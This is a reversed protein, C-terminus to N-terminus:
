PDYLLVLHSSTADMKCNSDGNKIPDCAGRQMFHMRSTGNMLFIHDLSVYTKISSAKLVARVESIFVVDFISVVM